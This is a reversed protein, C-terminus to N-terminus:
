ESFSFLVQNKQIHFVQIEFLMVIPFFFSFSRIEKM